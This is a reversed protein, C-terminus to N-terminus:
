RHFRIQHEQEAEQQEGASEQMKMESLLQENWDKCPDAPLERVCSTDNRVDLGFFERLQSRFVKYREKMENVQEQVDDPHCLGSSRM